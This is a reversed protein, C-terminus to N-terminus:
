SILRRANEGMIADLARPSLELRRIAEASRAITFTTNPCDSGFLLREHLAEVRDIPLATQWEPASTLDALLAPHRDLLDFAADM